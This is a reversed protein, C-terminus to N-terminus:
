RQERAAEVGQQIHKPWKSLDAGRLVAYYPNKPDRPHFRCLGNKLIRNHSRMGLGQLTKALVQDEPQQGKSAAWPTSPLLGGARMFDSKM